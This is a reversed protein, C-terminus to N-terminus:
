YDSVEEWKTMGITKFYIAKSHIDTQGLIAEMVDGLGYYASVEKMSDDNYQIM